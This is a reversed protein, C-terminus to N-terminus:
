PLITKVIIWRALPEPKESGTGERWEWLKIEEAPFKKKLDRRAAEDFGGRDNFSVPCNPYYRLFSRVIKIGTAPLDSAAFRPAV